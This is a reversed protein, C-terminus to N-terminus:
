ASRRGVALGDPTVNGYVSLPASSLAYIGVKQVTSDVDLENMAVTVRTLPSKALNINALGGSAKFRTISVDELGAAVNAMVSSTGNPGVHGSGGVIKIHRVKYPGSPHIQIADNHTPKGGHQPDVAFWAPRAFHWDYASAKVLGTPSYFALGDVTDWGWVNDLAFDHGIIAYAWRLHPTVPHMPCNSIWLDEVVSSKANLLANDGTYLPPGEIVWPSNNFAVGKALINQQGVVVANEIVTGNKAISGAPIRHDYDVLDPRSLMLEPTHLGPVGPYAPDPLGRVAAELQASLDLVDAKTTM